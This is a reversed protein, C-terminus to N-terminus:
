AGVELRADAHRDSDLVVRVAERERLRQVARSSPVREDEAHDEPRADAYPALWDPTEMVHSDADHFTRGEAYAM